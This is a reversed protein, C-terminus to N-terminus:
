SGGHEDRWREAGVGSRRGGAGRLRYRWGGHEDEAGDELPIPRLVSIGFGPDALLPEGDLTVVVM